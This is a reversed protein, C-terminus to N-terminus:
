AGVAQGTRIDHRIAALVRGQAIVTAVAFTVGFGIPIAWPTVDGTVEAVVFGLLYIALM